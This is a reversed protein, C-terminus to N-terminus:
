QTPSTSARKTCALDSLEVRSTDYVAAVTFCYDLKPNLGNLTYTTTGPQMTQLQRLAGQRGGAVIFPVTGASPDTWTLTVSAGDDRLKLDRPAGSAPTAKAPPASTVVNNDPAAQDKPRAAMFAIVAAIAGGILAVILIILIAVLPSRRRGASGDDRPGSTGALTSYGATPYDTFARQSGPDVPPPISTPAVTAPPVLPPPPVPSPPTVPPPPPAPPPVPRSLAGYAPPRTLPDFSAPEPPPIPADPPPIGLARRAALVAPHDAGLAVPGFRAVQGYRRKAEYVNGLESAVGALDFALILMVPHEDGLRYHGAALAEELLRRAETLDGLGIHIRALLSTASLVDPDDVGLMASAADVAQDLLALAGQLDGQEAMTRASQVATALLAPASV